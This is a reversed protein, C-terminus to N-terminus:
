YNKNHCSNLREVYIAHIEAETAEPFRRRLGSRLLERTAETLEWAKRLREAPTMRRLIMLYRARNPTPKPAATIETVMPTAQPDIAAVAPPRVSATMIRTTSM